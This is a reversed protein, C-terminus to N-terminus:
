SIILPVLTGDYSLCDAFQYVVSVEGLQVKVGFGRRRLPAYVPM